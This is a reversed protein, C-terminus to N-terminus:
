SVAEKDCFILEAEELQSIFVLLDDEAQNPGVEFYDIIKAKIDELSNQGNIQIWIGAVMDNLTFVNDTMEGEEGQSEIPIIVVHNGIKRTVLRPMMNYVKELTEM